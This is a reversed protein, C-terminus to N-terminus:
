RVPWVITGRRNKPEIMVVAKERLRRASETLGANLYRRIALVPDEHLTAPISRGLLDVRRGVYDPRDRSKGFKPFGFDRSATRRPPFPQRTTAAYFTWVDFDKVGNQRDIFHLAAGQCLAVGLVRSSLEHCKRQVSFFVRRDDAAIKSLTALDDLTIEAMSRSDARNRGIKARDGNLKQARQARPSNDARLEVDVYNEAARRAAERGAIRGFSIWSGSRPHIEGFNWNNWRKTVNWVVLTRSRYTWTSHEPM